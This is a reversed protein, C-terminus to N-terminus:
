TRFRIGDLAVHGHDKGGAVVVITGDPLVDVRTIKEHNQANFCLRARPRFGEPLTAIHGWQGGKVLGSVTVQGDRKHYTAGAYSGGYDVWGNALPLKQFHIEVQEQLQLVRQALQQLQDQTQSHLQLLSGFSREILQKLQANTTGADTVMKQAANLEEQSKNLALKALAVNVIAPSAHEAYDGPTTELAAWDSFLGGLADVALQHTAKYIDEAERAAQQARQLCEHEPTIGLEQLNQVASAGSGNEGAPMAEASMERTQSRGEM